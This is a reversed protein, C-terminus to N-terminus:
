YGGGGGRTAADLAENARDRDQKTRADTGSQPETATSCGLPATLVCALAALLVAQSIKM